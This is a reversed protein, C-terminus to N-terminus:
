ALVSEQGILNRIHQYREAREVRSALAQLAAGKRHNHAASGDLKLLKTAIDKAKGKTSINELYNQAASDLIEEHAELCLEYLLELLPVSPKGDPVPLAGILKEIMRLVVQLHLPSVRSANKFARAFRGFVVAGSATLAAVCAGFGAGDFRGDEITAIL